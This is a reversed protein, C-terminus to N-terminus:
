QQRRCMPQELGERGEEHRILWKVWMREPSKSESYQSFPPWESHTSAERWRLECARSMMGVMKKVGTKWMLNAKRRLLGESHEEM